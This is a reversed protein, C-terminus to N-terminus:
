TVQAEPGQITVTLKSTAWMIMLSHTVFFTIIIVIFVSFNCTYLISIHQFGSFFKKTLLLSDGYIAILPSFVSVHLHITRLVTLLNTWADLIPREIGTFASTKYKGILLRHHIIVGANPTFAQNSVGLSCQKYARGGSTQLCFILTHEM